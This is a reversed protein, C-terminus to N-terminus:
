RGPPRRGGPHKTRAARAEAALGAIRDMVATHAAEPDPAAAPVPADQAEPAPEPPGLLRCAALAMLARKTTLHKGAIRAIALQGDRVATRLSAVTLPGNPWFLECAEGLTMLEDEGWQDPHPRQAIRSHSTM